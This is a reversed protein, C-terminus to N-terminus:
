TFPLINFIFVLLIVIFIALAAKKMDLSISPLAISHVCGSYKSNTTEVWDSCLKGICPANRRPCNKVDSKPQEDSKSPTSKSVTPNLVDVGQNQNQSQYSNKAQDATGNQRMSEIENGMGKSREVFEGVSDKKIIEGIKEPVDKKITRNELVENM